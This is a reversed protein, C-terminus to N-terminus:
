AIVEVINALVLKKIEPLRAADFLVRQKGDFADPTLVQAEIRKKLTEESIELKRALQASNLFQLTPQM